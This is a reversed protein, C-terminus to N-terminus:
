RRVAGDLAVDVGRALADIVGRGAAPVGLDLHLDALARAPEARDLLRLGGAAALRLSLLGRVQTKRAKRPHRRRTFAHNSSAGVTKVVYPCIFIVTRAPRSNRAMGPGVVIGSATSCAICRGAISM